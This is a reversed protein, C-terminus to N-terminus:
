FVGWSYSIKLSCSDSIAEVTEVGTPDKGTNQLASAQFRGDADAKVAGTEPPDLRTTVNGSGDVTAVTGLQGNHAMRLHVDTGPPFGSGELLALEFKASLRIASLKCGKDESEVPDPVISIPIKLDKAIFVMRRPEGKLPKTLDFEVPTGRACIMKGKSNLTIDTM